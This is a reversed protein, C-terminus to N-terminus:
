QTAATVQEVRDLIASWPLPRGPPAERPEYLPWVDKGTVLHVGASGLAALHSEWAPHRTHAANVRPFVVVPVVGGGIAENVTTLAQNDSIGLALKAVVNATAPSVVYCSIPPHPSREGPMRPSSRVLHGTIAVDWGREIAPEVFDARITEAGGAACAILGITGRSV